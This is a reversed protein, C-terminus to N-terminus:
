CAICLWVDYMFCVNLVCACNFVEATHVPASHTFVYPTFEPVVYDDVVMEVRKPSTLPVARPPRYIPPSHVRPRYRPISRVSPRYHFDPVPEDSAVYVVRPATARRRYPKTLPTYETAYVDDDIRKQRRRPKTEPEFEYDIYDIFDRKKKRPPLSTARIFLASLPLENSVSNRSTYTSRTTSYKPPKDMLNNATTYDM